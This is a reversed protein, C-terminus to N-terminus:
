KRALLLCGGILSFVAYARRDFFGGFFFSHPGSHPICSHRRSAQIFALHQRLNGQVIRAFVLTTFLVSVGSLIKVVRM